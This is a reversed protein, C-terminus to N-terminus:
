MFLINWGTDVHRWIAYVEWDYLYLMTGSCRVELSWYDREFLIYIVLTFLPTSFFFFLVVARIGRKDFLNVISAVRMFDYAWMVCVNQIGDFRSLLCESVGGGVGESM